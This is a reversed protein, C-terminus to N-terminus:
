KTKGKAKIGKTAQYAKLKKVDEAYYEKPTQYYQCEKANKVNCGMQGGAKTCCGFINKCRWFTKIKEEKM